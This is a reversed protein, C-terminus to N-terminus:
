RMRSPAEPGPPPSVDEDACILRDYYLTPLKLSPLRAEVSVVCVCGRAERKFLLPGSLRCGEARAHVKLRVVGRGTEVGVSRLPGLARRAAAFGVERLPELLTEMLIDSPRSGKAGGGGGGGSLEILAGGDLTGATTNQRRDCQFRDRHYFVDVPVRRLTDGM